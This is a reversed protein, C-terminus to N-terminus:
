QFDTFVPQSRVADLIKPTTKEFQVLCNHLSRSAILAKKRTVPELSTTDDEVEDDVNNEEIINVIEELIQVELCTDNEYLYDSMSNVDMKSRYDFDNIMVELEDINNERSDSDCDSDCSVSLVFLQHFLQQWRKTEVLSM